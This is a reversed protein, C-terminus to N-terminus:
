ISYPYKLLTFVGLTLLTSPNKMSSLFHTDSNYMLKTQLKWHSHHNLLSIIRRLFIYCFWDTVLCSFQCSFYGNSLHCAEAFVCSEFDSFYHSSGRKRELRTLPLFAAWSGGQLPQGKMPLRGPGTAGPCPSSCPSLPFPSYAGM